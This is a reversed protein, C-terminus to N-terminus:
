NDSIYCKLPYYLSRLYQYYTHVNTKQIYSYHEQLDTANCNNRSKCEKYCFQEFIKYLGWLWTLICRLVVSQYLCLRTKLSFIPICTRHTCNCMRTHRRKLSGLFLQEYRRMFYEYCNFPTFGKQSDIDRLLFYTSQLIFTFSYTTKATM